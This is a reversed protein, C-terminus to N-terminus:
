DFFLQAYEEVKFGLHIKKNVELVPRKILSNNNMMLEIAKINDVETKDEDALKRWTTGRKNILEDWQSHQLWGELTTREVPSKKYDQFEFDIEHDKLWNLAKKMTDCSKIGYIKVSNMTHNGTVRM